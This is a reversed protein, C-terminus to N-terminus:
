KKQSNNIWDPINIENLAKSTYATLHIDGDLSEISVHHLDISGKLLQLREALDANGFRGLIKPAIFVHIEDALNAKLFSAIIKSGGEVLLQTIQLEVLKELLSKLDLKDAHAAIPLVHAGKQQFQRALNSKQEITKQTTTLYLPFKKATKVLQSNLPTRLYTDLVIRAPKRGKPPRPTLLPDDTLVTNIGVLVAQARRRLHHAQERSTENSIWRNSKQNAYALKSDITQAWKVIVWPEKTKAFKIFPANLLRAQNECLGTHVNIGAKQLLEVGAGGAHDSPDLCAIFVKSIGAKIVADTCPPTKGHHSCPELTVYLVSGSPEAGKKKCDEIANIEAHPGGFRKHYGKGIIKGDKVLLAGVAPNPEVSGIGKEALKLAKLM